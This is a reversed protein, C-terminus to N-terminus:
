AIKHVLAGGFNGADRWMWIVQAHKSFQPYTPSGDSVETDRPSITSISTGRMVMALSQQPVPMHRVRRQEVRTWDDGFMRPFSEVWSGSVFVEKMFCVFREGM